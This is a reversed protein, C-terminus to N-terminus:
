PLSPDGCFVCFHGWSVSDTKKWWRLGSLTIVMIIGLFLKGAGRAEGGEKRGWKPVILFMWCYPSPMFPRPLFLFSSAGGRRQTCAEWRHYLQPSGIALTAWWRLCLAIWFRLFWPYLISLKKLSNNYLKGFCTVRLLLRLSHASIHSVPVKPLSNWSLSCWWCCSLGTFVHHTPYM